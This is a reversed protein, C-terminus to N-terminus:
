PSSSAMVRHSRAYATMSRYSRTGSASSERSLNNDAAGQFGENEARAQRATVTTPRVGNVGGRARTYAFIGAAHRVHSSVADSAFCRVQKLSHETANAKEARLLGGNSGRFKSHFPITARPAPAPDPQPSFLSRNVQNLGGVAQADARAARGRRTREAGSAQGRRPWACGVRKPRMGRGRLVVLKSRRQGPGGLVRRGLGTVGGGREGGSAGACACSRPAACLRSRFATCSSMLSPAGKSSGSPARRRGGGASGGWKKEKIEATDAARAAAPQRPM